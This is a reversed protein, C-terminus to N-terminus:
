LHTVTHDVPLQEILSPTKNHKGLMKGHDCESARVGSASGPMPPGGGGVGSTFIGWSSAATVFCM